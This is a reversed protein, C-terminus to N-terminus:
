QVCYVGQDARGPEKETQQLMCFLGRLFLGRIRKADMDFVDNVKKAEAEAEAAAAATAAEKEAVVDAIEEIEAAGDCDASATLFIGSLVLLAFIFCMANKIKKVSMLLVVNVIPMRHYLGKM